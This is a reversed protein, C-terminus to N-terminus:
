FWIVLIVLIILIISLVIVTYIECSSKTNLLKSVMKTLNNMREEADNIEIELNDLLAAQGILEEKITKSIHGLKTLNDSLVGISQEQEKMMMHTINRQNAVFDSNSDNQSSSYSSSSFSSSSSSYNTPSNSSDSMNENYNKVVNSDLEKKIEIVKNLSEEVFGRRKKLESETFRKKQKSMVEVGERLNYLDKEIGRLDKMLIKRNEKIDYNTESFRSNYSSKNPNQCHFVLLNKKDEIKELQSNIQDRLKYYPDFSSELLPQEDDDSSLPLSTPASSRSLFSSSTAINNM